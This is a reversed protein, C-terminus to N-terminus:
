AGGVAVQKGSSNADEVFKDALENTMIIDPDKKLLFWKWKPPLRPVFFNKQLYDEEQATMKPDEKMSRPFYNSCLIHKLKCPLVPYAYQHCGSDGLELVWAGSQFVRKNALVQTHRIEEWIIVDKGLLHAQRICPM